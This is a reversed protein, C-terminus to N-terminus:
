MTIFCVKPESSPVVVTHMRGDVGRVYLECPQLVVMLLTAGSRLGACSSIRLLALPVLLLVHASFPYSQIFIETGSYNAITDCPDVM